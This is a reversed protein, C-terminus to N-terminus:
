MEYCAGIRVKQRAQQCSGTVLLINEQLSLSVGERERERERKNTQGCKLILKITKILRSDQALHRPQILHCSLITHLSQSLISQCDRFGDTEIGLKCWDSYQSGMVCWVFSISSSSTLALGAKVVRFSSGPEENNTQHRTGTSMIRDPSLGTVSLPQEGPGGSLTGVDQWVIEGPSHDTM